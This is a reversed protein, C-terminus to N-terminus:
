KLTKTTASDNKTLSHMINGKIYKTTTQIFECKM